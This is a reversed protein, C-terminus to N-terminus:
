YPGREQFGAAWEEGTAYRFSEVGGEMDAHLRARGFELMTRRAANDGESGSEWDDGQEEQGEIGSTGQIVGWEERLRRMGLEDSVRNAGVINRLTAECDEVGDLEEQTTHPMHRLPQYNRWDDYRGADEEDNFTVTPAIRPIVM